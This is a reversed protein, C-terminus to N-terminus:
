GTENKEANKDGDEEVVPIKSIDLSQYGSEVDRALREREEEASVIGSAIYIEATQANQYRVEAAEKETIQHLPNFALEIDPSIEGFLSLQVVKLITELPERWYAEQQASVWDYFVRIEGESSANLGSPSIGTLIIAPIRSVTCMHEQSQAQLEHLGGLPVNLQMLEEREKDFLMLGNNSRMATFLNARALIPDVDDGEGGNLAQNMDTAIATISFNNILDAVSQRTRLWNNVYPEALQSLSIGAFNFAPKMIDPMPRTVITMLRSAHVERGLMYWKNPKYFNPSSPDKADYESPTTWIAEVSAIRQLSGRRVTRPDLILPTKSDQEAIDILIQGRGFLVDHESARQLVSRVNLRLFEAQIKSIKEYIDNNDIAKSVFRIWKRTLETSISAAFARYEARGALQSLYSFGPFGVYGSSMMSASLNYTPSDMAMVPAEKGEPIVGPMIHPPQIPYYYRKEEDRVHIRYKINRMANMLNPKDNRENM